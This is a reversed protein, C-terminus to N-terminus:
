RVYPRVEKIFTQAFDDAFQKEDVSLQQALKALEPSFLAPNESDKFMFSMALYLWQYARVKDGRALYIQYLKRQAPTYDRGAARELWYIEQVVDKKDEYLDALAMMAQLHNRAAAQGYWHMAKTKNQPIKVGEAFLRGLEYQSETDGYSATKALWQIDWKEDITPASKIKYVPNKILVDLSRAAERDGQDAAMQYYKKALLPDPLVSPKGYHYIRGLAFQAELYGAAAAQKLWHTIQAYDPNTQKEYFCALEFAARADGDDARAYLETQAVTEPTTSDTLPLLVSGAEARSVQGVVGCMVFFTWLKKM